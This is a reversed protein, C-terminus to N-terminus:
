DRVEHELRMFYRLGSPFVEPLMRGLIEKGKVKDMNLMALNFEYILNRGDETLHKYLKKETKWINM